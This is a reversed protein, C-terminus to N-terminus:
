KLGKAKEELTALEDCISMIKVIPHHHWAYALQGGRLKYEGKDGDFEVTGYVGMHYRIMMEEIETIKIIRKLRSISLLAHGAEKDKDRKWGGDDKQIYAGIKCIDHCIPAIIIAEKDICLSLEKNLKKVKKHVTLSHDALGGEFSNHGRISAPLTFFGQRELYYILGKINDRKVSKLLKIIAEKNKKIDIM